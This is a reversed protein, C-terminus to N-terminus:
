QTAKSYVPVEKIGFHKTYKSVTKNIEKTQNMCHYKSSKLYTFNKYKQHLDNIVNQDITKLDEKSQQISQYYNRSM